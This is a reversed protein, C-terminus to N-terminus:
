GFARQACGRVLRPRYVVICEGGAGDQAVTM